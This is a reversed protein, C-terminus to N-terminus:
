LSISWDAGAEGFVGGISSIEDMPAGFFASGSSIVTGVAFIFNVRNFLDERVLM